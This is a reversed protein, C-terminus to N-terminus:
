KEPEWEITFLEGRRRLEQRLAEEKELGLEHWEVFHSSVTEMLLVYKRSAIDYEYFYLQDNEQTILYYPEGFIGGEPNYELGSKWCIHGKYKM